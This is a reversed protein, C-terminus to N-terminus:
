RGGSSHFGRLPLSKQGNQICIYGGLGLRRKFVGLSRLEGKTRAEDCDLCARATLSDRSEPKCLQASARTPHPRQAMCPVTADGNGRGVLGDSPGLCGSQSPTQPSPFPEEQCAQQPPRGARRLPAETSGLSPTEM